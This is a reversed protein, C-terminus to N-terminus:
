KKELMQAIRGDLSSGIAGVLPHITATRCRCNITYQPPVNPDLPYMLFAHGKVAGSKSIDYVKFKEAVPIPNSHYDRHARLHGKRTRNDATAIWAKMLGPVDEATRQQQSHESINFVRQLETRVDMEAKASVGSAVFKGQKVGHNGFKKTLSQMAAFPSTQGLAIQQLQLDVNQRLPETIGSILSSSFDVLTNLQARSPRFFAGEFGVKRLPDVVSQGGDAYAARIARQLDTNARESFQVLLDNIQDKQLRLNHLDSESASLIRQNIEARTRDLLRWIKEITADEMKGYRAAIANLSATYDQKIGM